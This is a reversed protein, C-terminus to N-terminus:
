EQSSGWSRREERVWQAVRESTAWEPYSEVSLINQSQLLAREQRLLQLKLQAAEEFFRSREREGVQGDIEQLVDDAVIIHIRAM